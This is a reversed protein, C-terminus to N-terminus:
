AADKTQSCDYSGESLRVQSKIVDFFAFKVKKANEYKAPGESNVWGAVQQFLEYLVSQVVPHDQFPIKNM